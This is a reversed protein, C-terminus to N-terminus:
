PSRVRAAYTLLWHAVVASGPCGEDGLPSSLSLICICPFNKLIKKELVLPYFEIM